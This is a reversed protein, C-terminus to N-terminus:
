DGEVGKKREIGITDLIRRLDDAELIKDEGTMEMEYLLLSDGEFCYEDELDFEEWMQNVDDWRSIGYFYDCEPSFTICFEDLVDRFKMELLDDFKM